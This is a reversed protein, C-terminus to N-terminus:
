LSALYDRLEQPLDLFEVGMGSREYPLLRRPFLRAHRVVAKVIYVGSPASVEITLNTGPFYVPRNTSIFLGQTSIQIAAAPFQPEELGFRVALRKFKRKGKRKERKKKVSVGDFSEPQTERIPDVTSAM